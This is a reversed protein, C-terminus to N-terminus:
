VCLVERAKEKVVDEVFWEYVERAGVAELLAYMGLAVGRRGRALVASEVVDIAENTDCLEACLLAEYVPSRLRDGLRSRLTM